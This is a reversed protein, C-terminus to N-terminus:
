RDVDFDRRRPLALSLELSRGRGEIKMLLESKQGLERLRREGSLGFADDVVRQAYANWDRREEPRMKSAEARVVERVDDKTHGTVRLRIAILADMRSSDVNRGESTSRVDQLHRRYAEAIDRAPLESPGRPEAGLERAIAVNRPARRAAAIDVQLEPNTIRFGHEAALEVCLRKYEDSGFVHFTGWKQASLQLAALVSDRRLDHIWIERGRDSFSPARGRDHARRYHVQGGRADAEFARIDRPRASEDGDGVIRCQTRERFRWQDALEPTGRARLWEEFSPWRPFRERVKERELQQREKLAAKEQAQRAAPMSRFANLEDRRGRWNRDFCKRRQERQRALMEQWPGHQDERLQERNSARDAYHKEREAAYTKWGRAAPGLPEPELRRQPAQARDPVFEGLRKELASLSCDRGATSAKVVVDGIWLVAGSGKRGVRIGRDSLLLHLEHWSGARRMAEAAVEIAV